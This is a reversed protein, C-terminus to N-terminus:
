RASRRVWAGTRWHWCCVQWLTYPPPSFFYGLNEAALHDHYIEDEHTDLLLDALSSFTLVTLLAILAAYTM